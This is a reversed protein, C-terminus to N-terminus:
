ADPAKLTSPRCLCYLFRVGGELVSMVSWAILYIIMADLTGRRFFYLALLLLPVGPLEVWSHDKGIRLSNWDLLILFFVLGLCGPPMEIFLLVLLAPSIPTPLRLLTSGTSSTAADPAVYGTRPYVFRKKLWETAESPAGPNLLWLRFLAFMIVIGIWGFLQSRGLIFAGFFLGLLGFFSGSVLRPIGDANWDSYARYRAMRAQENDAPQGTEREIASESAPIPVSDNPETPAPNERLFRVLRLAGDGILVFGFGVLFYWFRERRTINAVFMVAFVFAIGLHRFWRDRNIQYSYLGAMIAALLCFWRDDALFVGYAAAAAIAHLLLPVGFNGRIGVPEQQTQTSPDLLTPLTLNKNEQASEVYNPPASYGTRPYSVRRKILEIAKKKIWPFLVLFAVPLWPSILGALHNGRAAEYFTTGVLLIVVGGLIASIGDSEWNERHSEKARQLTQGLTSM